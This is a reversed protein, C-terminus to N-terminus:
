QKSRYFKAAGTPTVALPSSGPVDSWTGTITDASQLSGTFTITVGSASRAISLTPTPEVAAFTDGYDRFKALWMGRLTTDFINGNEPSFEPGVYVTDPLPVKDPDNLDPFSTSGMQLWNVGDNSRYIALTQGVRQIRCWANPYQPTGGNQGLASTCGGGTILRRNGEWAYNGNTTGGDSAPLCFQPNVHCKQYRGAKGTFPPTTGNSPTGSPDGTQDVANVGFNLVDRVIIGARAWQSSTDQFEVRLKKDFDGTIAEYVFTTEDYNSWEGFGDSYVDFGNAAVAVVGNGLNLQDAGVVGWNLTGVTIDQSASTLKNGKSDSVNKVTVTYTKGSTLGSVTLAAGPSKPYYKFATITGGSISYNAQNGASANDMPKNYGVGVDYTGAQNKVLGVSITPPATDPSVTVAVESSAVTTGPVSVNCKFKAGSDAVSLVPTRYSPSTAGAIDQGNRQWQYSVGGTGAVPPSGVNPTTGYPSSGSAQVSFTAVQGDLVSAAVPQQSIAVTGSLDVYTGIVSGVLAPVTGDTPDSDSAM